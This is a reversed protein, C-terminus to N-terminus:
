RSTVPMTRNFWTTQDSAAHRVGYICTVDNEIAFVVVYPFRDVLAGRYCDGIFGHLEPQEVIKAIKKRVNMRFRDGLPLSIADYYKCAERLDTAVQPHYRENRMSEDGYSM